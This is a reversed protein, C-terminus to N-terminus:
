LLFRVITQKKTSRNQQGYYRDLDIKELTDARNKCRVGTVM